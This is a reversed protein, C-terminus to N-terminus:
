KVRVVELPQRHARVEDALLLLAVTRPDPRVLQTKGLAIEVARSTAGEPDPEAEDVRM